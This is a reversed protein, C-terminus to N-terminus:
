QALHSPSTQRKDVMMRQWSADLEEPGYVGRLINKFLLEQTHISLLKDPGGPRRDRNWQQYANRMELSLDRGIQVLAIDDVVGDQLLRQKAAEVQHAKHTVVEQDTNITIQVAITEVGDNEELSVGRRHDIRKIIFDIKNEVDDYVDGLQVEIDLGYDMHLKTLYNKVMVEVVHGFQPIAKRENLLARYATEKGTDIFRNSLQDILIQENLLSSLQHKAREILFKKCIDRPIKGTKVTFGEGWERDTILEGVTLNDWNVGDSSTQLVGEVFRTQRGGADGIQHRGPEDLLRLHEKLQAMIQQKRLQIDKIEQEAELVQEPFKPHANRIQLVERSVEKLKEELVGQTEELVPDQLVEDGVEAQDLEFQAADRYVRLRDEFGSEM